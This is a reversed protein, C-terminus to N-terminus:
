LLRSYVLSIDHDGEAAGYSIEERVFDFGKAEYFPIGYENGKAVSVWQREAGYSYKQIKSYFTLLRTGIGAGREDPDVYFIYIEGDTEDKMGGGIVGLIQGDKEAVFYGHWSRDITTVEQKIREVNYYKKILRKIYAESFLKEYTFWQCKSLLDAITKAEDSRAIRVLIETM